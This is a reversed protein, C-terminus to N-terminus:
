IAAGGSNGRQGHDLPSSRRMPQGRRYAEAEQAASLFAEARVGLMQWSSVYRAGSALLKEEFVIRSGAFDGVMSASEDESWRVRWAGFDAAACWCPLTWGRDLVGLAELHAAVRLVLPSLRAALWPHRAALLLRSRVERLVERAAVLLVGADPSLLVFDTVPMNDRMSWGQARAYLNEAVSRAASRAEGFLGEPRFVLSGPMLLLWEREFEEWIYPHTLVFQDLSSSIALVVLEEDQEDLARRLTPHILQSQRARGPVPKQPPIAGCLAAPVSLLGFAAMANSALWERRTPVGSSAAPDRNM